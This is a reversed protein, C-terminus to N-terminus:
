MHFLETKSSKIVRHVIAWCARDMPTELCSCQTPQDNGVEPSRGQGLISGVKQRGASDHNKGGAGGLTCHSLHEGNLFSHFRCRAYNQNQYHFTFLMHIHTISHTM